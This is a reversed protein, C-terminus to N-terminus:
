QLSFTGQGQLSFGPGSPVPDCLAGAPPLVHQPCILPAKLQQASAAGHVGSDDGQISGLEEAQRPPAQHRHQAVLAEMRLVEHNFGAESDCLVISIM